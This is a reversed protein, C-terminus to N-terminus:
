KKDNEVKKVVQEITATPMVQATLIQQNATEVPTVQPRVIFIVALALVADVAFMVAALQEASVKFGFAMLALLVAKIAASIAVTLALPERLFLM